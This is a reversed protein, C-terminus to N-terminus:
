TVEAKRIQPFEPSLEAQFLWKSGKRDLRIVTGDTLEILCHSHHRCLWHKVKTSGAKADIEGDTM